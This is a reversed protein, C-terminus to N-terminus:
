TYIFYRRVLTLHITFCQLSCAFHQHFYLWTLKQYLEWIAKNKKLNILQNISKASLSCLTCLCSCSSPCFSLSFSLLLSGVSCLDWCPAWDWSGSSLDLVPRKVSLVVWAGGFTRIKYLSWIKIYFILLATWKHMCPFWAQIQHSQGKGLDEPICGERCQSEDCQLLTIM